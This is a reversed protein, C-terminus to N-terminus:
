TAKRRRRWLAIDDPSGLAVDLQAGRAANHSSIVLLGDLYPKAGVKHGQFGGM